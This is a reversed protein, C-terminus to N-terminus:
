GGAMTYPCYPTSPHRGDHQGVRERTSIDTTRPRTRRSRGPGSAGPNAVAESLTADVSFHADSLLGEQYAVWGVEDLLARGADHAPLRQRNKTFITTDFSREPLDMDLCWRCPLNYELGERSVRESRGAYLAILPSAKLLQEPPASAQNAQPYMHDFIPSPQALAADAM